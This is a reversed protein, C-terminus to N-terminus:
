GADLEHDLAAREADTPEAGGYWSWAREFAAQQAAETTMESVLPSVNEGHREEALPVRIRTTGSDVSVGITGAAGSRRRRKM